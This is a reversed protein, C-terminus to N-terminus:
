EEMVRKAIAGSAARTRKNLKNMQLLFYYYIVTETLLLSETALLWFGWNVNAYTMLFTTM